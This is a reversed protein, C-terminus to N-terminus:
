HAMEIHVSIKTKVHNRLQLNEIFFIPLHQKLDLLYGFANRFELCGNQIRIRSYEVGYENELLFKTFLTIRISEM